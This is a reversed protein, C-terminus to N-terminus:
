RDTQIWYVDYRNFQIPGVNKQGRMEGLYNNIILIECILKSCLKIEM